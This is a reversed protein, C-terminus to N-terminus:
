EVIKILTFAGIIQGPKFGGSARPGFEALRRGALEVMTASNDVGLYRADPPMEGALLRAAFRGTGCGFEFVSRAGAFAGSDALCDLAKDEYWAQRDQRAGFRDYHTRLADPPVTM